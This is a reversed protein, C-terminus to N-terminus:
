SGNSKRQKVWRLEELCWVIMWLFYTPCGQVRPRTLWGKSPKRTPPRIFCYRYDKLVSSSSTLHCHTVRGWDALWNSIAAHNGMSRFLMSWRPWVDCWLALGNIMFGLSRCSKNCVTGNLMTMHRARWRGVTAKRKRASTAWWSTHWWDMIPSSANLWSHM